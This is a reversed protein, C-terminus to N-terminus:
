FFYRTIADKKGRRDEKKPVISLRTCVRFLLKGMESGAVRTNRDYLEFFPMCEDPWVSGLLEPLTYSTLKGQVAHIRSMVFGETLSLVVAKSLMMQVAQQM